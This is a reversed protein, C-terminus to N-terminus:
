KLRFSPFALAAIGFVIGCADILILCRGFTYTAAMGWQSMAHGLKEDMLYCIGVGLILGVAVPWAFIFWGILGLGLIIAPLVDDLFKQKTM